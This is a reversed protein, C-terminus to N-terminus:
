TLLKQIGSSYQAAKKPTNALDEPVGLLIAANRLIAKRRTGDLKFRPALSLGAAMVETDAFPFRPEIWRSCAAEDRIFGRVACGAVDGRMLADAAEPGQEDYARQYKAYGGFLEDALQGLLIVDAGARAAAESALSYMSWLSRDMQTPDFPLSITAAAEEARSSSVEEEVLELGLARAAAPAAVSDRSGGAHVACAFTRSYKKACVALISSDLGGSFSVAVRKVGELRAGVARDILSALEEAADEPSGWTSKQDLSSETTRTSGLDYRAGAPLLESEEGPFFRWDTAVWRKSKSVYLPRTGALDRVAEVTRGSIGAMSCESEGRIGKWGHVVPLSSGENLSLAILDAEHTGGLSFQVHLPRGIRHLGVEPTNAEATRRAEGDLSICFASCRIM